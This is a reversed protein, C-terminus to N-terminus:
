MTKEDPGNPGDEKINDNNIKEDDFVEHIYHTLAVSSSNMMTRTVEKLERLVRQLNSFKLSLYVKRWQNIGHGTTSKVFTAFHSDTYPTGKKSRFLFKFDPTRIQEKYKVQELLLPQLTDPIDVVCIGYRDRTKYNIFIFKQDQISYYNYSQDMEDTYKDCYLMLAYDARVPAIHEGNYLDFILKKQLDYVYCPTGQKNDLEYLKLRQNIKQYEKNVKDIDITIDDHKIKQEQEHTKETNMTTLAERYKNIFHDNLECAKLWMIISAILTMRTSTNKYKNKIVEIVKEYGLTLPSLTLDETGLMKYLKNINSVYTEITRQKNTMDKGERKYYEIFCRKIESRM